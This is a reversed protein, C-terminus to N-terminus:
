GRTGRGNMRVNNRTVAQDDRIVARVLQVQQGADSTVHLQVDVRHGGGGSGGMPSDGSSIVRQAEPRTIQKANLRRMFDDGYYASAEPNIVWERPDALILRTDGTGSGGVKGGNAFQSLLGGVAAGVKNVRMTVNITFDRVAQLQKIQAMADSFGETQFKVPATKPVKLLQDALKVAADRTGGPGNMQDALDIFQKRLDKYAGRANQVKPTSQNWQEALDLLASMNADAAKSGDELVRKGKQAEERASRLTERLAIEDRRNQIISLRRKEEAASLKDLASKADKIRQALTQLANSEGATADASKGTAAAFDQQRGKAETLAIGAEALSDRIANAADQQDSGFLKSLGLPDGGAGAFGRGQAIDDIAASVRELPEAKGEAAGLLDSLAIGLDKAAKVAGGQELANFILEKTNATIRGTQVNLSATLDDVFQKAKQHQQWFHTVAITGGAIALGWPGGLLGVASGLGAKLSRGAGSSAESLAGLSASMRGVGPTFKGVQGNIELTGNRLKKFEDTVLMSRLRVDDLGGRLGALGGTALSALGTGIGTAAALRFAVLATAAAKVPTPLDSFARAATGVAGGVASVAPIVDNTTVNAFATLAPM